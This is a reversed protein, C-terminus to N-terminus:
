KKNSTKEVVQQVQKLAEQGSQAELAKVALQQVKEEANSLSNQLKSIQDDKETNKSSLHNVDSDLKSIQSNFEMERLQSTHNLDKKLSNTAISVKADVESKIKAPFLEVEARLRDFEEKKSLLEEERASWIRELKEQNLKNELDQRRLTEQRQDDERRRKLGLNYTYDDDAKTRIREKDEQDRQWVIEQAEISDKISAKKSALELELETKKKEFSDVLEAISSAAIDKGHLDELEEKAVAIAERITNLEAIATNTENQINAFAKSIDVNVAAIKAAAKEASAEATDRQVKAKRAAAIQKAKPDLDDRASERAIVDGLAKKTTSRTRTARTGNATTM